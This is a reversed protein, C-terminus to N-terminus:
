VSVTSHTCYRGPSQLVDHLVHVRTVRSKLFCYGSPFKQMSKILPGVVFCKLLKYASFFGTFAIDLLGFPVKM